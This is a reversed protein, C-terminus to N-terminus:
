GHIFLLNGLVTTFAVILILLILEGTLNPFHKYCEDKNFFIYILVIMLYVITSYIFVAKKSINLSLTGNCDFAIYWLIIIIILVVISNVM